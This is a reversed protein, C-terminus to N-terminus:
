AFLAKLFSFGSRQKVLLGFVGLFITLAAPRTVFGLALYFEVMYFEAYDHIPAWIKPSGYLFDLLIWSTIWLDKFEPIGFNAQGVSVVKAVM